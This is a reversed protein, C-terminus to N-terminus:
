AYLFEGTGKNEHFKKSVADYLGVKEGVKAPIFDKILVDDEYIKCSYLKMDHRAFTYIHLKDIESNVGFLFVSLKEHNKTKEELQMYKTYNVANRTM